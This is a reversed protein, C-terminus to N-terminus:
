LQPTGGGQARRIYEAVVEQVEVPKAIMIWAAEHSSTGATAFLLTGVGFVREILPLSLSTNQVHTLPCEFLHVHLAGRIRIVRRNTLVYIHSLWQTCAVLLRAVVAAACFATITQVSVPLSIMQDLVHAAVALAIAGIAFPVSVLFIFIGSPKLALVVEEGDQILKAPIAVAPSVPTATAPDAVPSM